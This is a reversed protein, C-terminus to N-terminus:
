SEYFYEGKEEDSVVKGGVVAIVRQKLANVINKNHTAVAVTTGRLNVKLLLQMIEWSTDPDLNGTPEDALLISPNNVLSRAISTRQQEGGSLDDPYCKAKHALGVLELVKPVQRYIEAKSANIVELAFAVNEFVNKQPLLKFDQFVVGVNRRHYPIQVNRINTIDKGGVIVKGKTPIEELYILKLLTSKGCGTPGVIFVFEGKKIHLNIGELAHVGNRYTFCVERMEIMPIELM